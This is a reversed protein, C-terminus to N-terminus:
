GETAGHFVNEALQYRVTTLLSTFGNCLAAGLINKLNRSLLVLSKGHQFNGM